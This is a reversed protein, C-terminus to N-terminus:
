NQMRIKRRVLTWDSILRNEQASNLYRKDGNAILGIGACALMFCLFTASNRTLMMCVSCTASQCIHEAHLILLAGSLLASACLLLILALAIKRQKM